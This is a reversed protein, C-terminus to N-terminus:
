GWLVTAINGGNATITGRINQKVGFAQGYETLEFVGAMDLDVWDSISYAHRVEAQLVLNASAQTAADSSIDSPADGNRVAAVLERVESEVMGGSVLSSVIEEDTMGADLAIQINNITQQTVPNTNTDSNNGSTDGSSSDSQNGSGNNDGANDSADSNANDDGSDSAAAGKDNDFSNPYLDRTRQVGFGAHSMYGLVAGLALVIILALAIGGTWFGWFRSTTGGAAANKRHGVVKLVIAAVALVTAIIALILM